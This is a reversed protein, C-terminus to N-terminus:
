VEKETLRFYSVIWFFPALSYKIATGIYSFGPFLSDADHININMNRMEISTSGFLSKLLTVELIGIIIILLIFTLFTKGVANRKFYVSGLLFVAQVTVFSIILDLLHVYQSDFLKYHLPMDFGFIMNTLYTGIPNGILYTILAVGPFYVTSLLIGSLLKEFHTAPILLYHMGGPTYTFARYTRGAFILGAILMFMVIASEDQVVMFVVTSIIWFTLERQGNEVFFRKLLLGLRNLSFSTNM